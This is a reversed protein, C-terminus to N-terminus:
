PTPALAVPQPPLFQLQGVSMGLKEAQEKIVVLSSTRALQNELDSLESRLQNRQTLLKEMEKGRSVLSNALVINALVTLFFLGVFVKKVM